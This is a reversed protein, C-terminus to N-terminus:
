RIGCPQGLGRDGAGGQPLGAAGVYRTPTLHQRALLAVAFYIHVSLTVIQTYVLPINVWAYCLLTGLKSTFSAMEVHLRDLMVEGAVGGEDYVKRLVTQGWRMPAWYLAYLDQTTVELSRLRQKEAETLLGCDVLAEYSRYKRGIKDSIQRFTLLMSLLAYRAIRRRQAAWKSGPMYTHLGICLGDIWPLSLFQEWWRFICHKNDNNDHDRRM